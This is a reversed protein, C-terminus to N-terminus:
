KFHFFCKNIMAYCHMELTFATAAAAAAVTGPVVGNITIELTQKNWNEAYFSNFACLVSYIFLYGLMDSRFFLSFCLWQRRVICKRCSLFSQSSFRFRQNLCMHYATAHTNSFLPMSSCVCRHSGFLKNTFTHTPSVAINQGSFMSHARLARVDTEIHKQTTTSSPWERALRDRISKVTHLEHRVPVRSLAFRILARTHSLPTWHNTLAYLLLLWVIAHLLRSVDCVFVSAYVRLNVICVSAGAGDVFVCVWEACTRGNLTASLCM